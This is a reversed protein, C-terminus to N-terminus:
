SRSPAEGSVVRKWLAQTMSCMGTSPRENSCTVSLETALSCPVQLRMLRFPKFSISIPADILDSATISSVSAVTSMSYVVTSAHAHIKAAFFHAKKSEGDRRNDRGSIGPEGYEFMEITLVPSPPM